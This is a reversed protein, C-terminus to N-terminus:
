RWWQIVETPNKNNDNEIRHASLSVGWEENTYRMHAVRYAVVHIKCTAITISRGSFEALLLIERQKAQEATHWCAACEVWLVRLYLM